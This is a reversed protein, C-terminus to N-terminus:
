VVPYGMRNLHDGFVHNCLDLQERTMIGRFRGAIGKNFHLIRRRRDPLSRADYKSVVERIREPSRYVSLFRVLDTLVGETDHLLDEYRTCFVHDQEMWRNWNKLQRRAVYLIGEEISGIKAFPHHAYPHKPGIARIKQGHEFASIAADRPDRYIYTPRLIGLSVFHRLRRPLARHTQVVLTRGLFHPVSLVALRYLTPQIRWERPNKLVPDLRFSRRMSLADEESVLLDQILTFYWRSGAKQMGAVLVIM